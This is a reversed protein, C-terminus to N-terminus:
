HCLGDEIAARKQKKNLPLSREFRVWGTDDDPFIQFLVPEKKADTIYYGILTTMEGGDLMTTHMVDAVQFGILAGPTVREWDLSELLEDSKGHRFLEVIYEM